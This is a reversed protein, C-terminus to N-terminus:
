RASVDVAEASVKVRGHDKFDIIFSDGNTSDLICCYIWGEDNRSVKIDGVRVSKKMQAKIQTKM